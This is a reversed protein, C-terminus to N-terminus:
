PFSIIGIGFRRLAWIRPAVSLMRTRSLHDPDPIRGGRLGFAEALSATDTTNTFDVSVHWKDYSLRQLM